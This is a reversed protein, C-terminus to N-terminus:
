IGCYEDGVNLRTLPKSMIKGNSLTIQHNIIGGNSDRIVEIKTVTPCQTEITEKKCGAIVTLAFLATIIIRKM